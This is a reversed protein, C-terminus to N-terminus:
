KKIDLKRAMWQLKNELDSKFNTCRKVNDIRKRPCGGMCIPLLNCDSCEEDKTADYMIYDNFLKSNFRHNSNEVLSGVAMEEIGIDSWCKYIIGKPDIIFGNIADATCSNTILNPYNIKESYGEKKVLDDNINIAMESFKETELCLNKEYCDNINDVRAMYVNACKTIGEDRLYEILESTKSINDKDVNVRLSINNCYKSAIKLNKLIQKFTGQGGVLPRRQNHIEEIGDITIQLGSIKLENLKSSIEETLNYGNTVMYAYYNINNKECIDIINNSLYEIADINLLPEGGYWTISLYDIHSAKEKIFELIKDQIDRGMYLNDQGDKQYCYICRFNCDITPAITLGLGRTSFRDKLLCYSLYTLEDFSDEVIFGGKVLKNFFDEDKKLEDLTLNNFKIYNEKSMLALANTRSNYSIVKEPNDKFDYFINYKSYKM